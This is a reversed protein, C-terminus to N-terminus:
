QQNRFAPPFVTPQRRFSEDLHRKYYGYLYPLKELFGYWQPDLRDLMLLVIVYDYHEGIQWCGPPEM